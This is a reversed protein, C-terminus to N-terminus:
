TTRQQLGPRWCCPLGGRLWEVDHGRDVKDPLLQEVGACEPGPLHRRSPPASAPPKPLFFPPKDSICRIFAAALFIMIASRKAEDLPQGSMSGSRDIVIALNLSNKREHLNPVEDANVRLLAHFENDFGKLLAERQPTMEINLM